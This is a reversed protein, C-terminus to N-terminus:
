KFSDKKNKKALNNFGLVFQDMEERDADPTFALLGDGIRHQILPAALWRGEKLKEGWQGYIAFHKGPNSASYQELIWGGTEDFKIEVAFGGPSQIVRAAVVNAETLIPNIAINVLVPSARVVSIPVIRGTPDAVAEIHVRLASIQKDKKSATRCGCALTLAVALALYLNFHLGCVKM